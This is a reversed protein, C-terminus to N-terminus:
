EMGRKVIEGRGGEEQSKRGSEEKRGAGERRREEARSGGVERRGQGDM